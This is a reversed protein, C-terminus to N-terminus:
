SMSTTDVSGEDGTMSNIMDDISSSSSSYTASTDCRESSGFAIIQAIVSVILVITFWGAPGEIHIMEELVGLVVTFVTGAGLACVFLGIGVAKLVEGFTFISVTGWTIINFIIASIIIVPMTINFKYENIVIFFSVTYFLASLIAFLGFKLKNRIFCLILGVFAIIGGIVLVIIEKQNIGDNLLSLIEM